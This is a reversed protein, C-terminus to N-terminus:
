KKDGRHPQMFSEIQKGIADNALQLPDDALHAYRQTTSSQTHGLLKGIIPLSLGGMAAVSAFSHRLDHIRVDLVTDDLPLAKTARNKVRGWPKSINVLHHGTKTGCIIYPNGKHRPLTSLIELAPTNLRIIKAGTKSDELFLVKRDFDVDPWKLQLIESRRAGTFMLLRIAALAYINMGESELERMAEGIASFERDSLFREKSKSPFKKAERAPNDGRWGEDIAIGFAVSLLALSRNAVAAGGKTGHGGKDEPRADKSTKGAKVDRMFKNIDAKTVEEILKKGLLPIIHNRINREDASISLPKLHSFAYDSLYFKCLDKMTQRKKEDDRIKAPDIGDAIAGLYSKAKDRATKPTWPEGHKGISFQRYVGKIRKNFIYIKDRKQRRLGFGTTETDWVMEGVQISDAVSNTIRAKRTAM